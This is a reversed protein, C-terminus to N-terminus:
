PTETSRPQLSRILLGFFEPPYREPAIADYKWGLHASCSGCVTFRWGYAPFWSHERYLTDGVLVHECTLFTIFNCRIGAPNVYSHEQAGMVSVREDDTVIFTGCSACHYRVRRGDDRSPIRIFALM